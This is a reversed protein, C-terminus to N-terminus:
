RDFGVIAAMFPTATPSPKDIAISDSMLIAESFALTYYHQQLKNFKLLVLHSVRHEDPKSQIFLFGAAFKEANTLFDTSM